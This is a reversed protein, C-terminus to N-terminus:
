RAQIKTALRRWFAGIAGSVSEATSSQFHPMPKSSDRKSAPIGPTPRSVMVMKDGHGRATSWGATERLDRLAKIDASGADPSVYTKEVEISAEVAAAQSMRQSLLYSLLVIAAGASVFACTIIRARYSGWLTRWRQGGRKLTRDYFARQRPDTLIERAAMIRRFHQEAARNGSNVDPHFKKAANRFATKIAEEDADASIGLVEYPTTM